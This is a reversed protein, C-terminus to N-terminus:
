INPNPQRMASSLREMSNGDCIEFNENYWRVANYDPLNPSPSGLLYRIQNYVIGFPIGNFKPGRYLGVLQPSGGCSPINSLMLSHCFCQFINRSTNAIDGAQYKAYLRKFEQAGSGEAFVLSSKTTDVNM